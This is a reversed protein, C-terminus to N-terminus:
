TKRVVDLDTFTGIRIDHIRYPESQFHKRVGSFSDYGFVHVRLAADEGLELVDRLSECQEIQERISKSPIDVFDIKDRTDFVRVRRRKGCALLPVRSANSRVSHYAWGTAGLHKDVGIRVLIEVDVIPRKGCNEFACQFFSSGDSLRYEALEHSFKIAPTWYHVSLWWVLFSGLVGLFFSLANILLDLM